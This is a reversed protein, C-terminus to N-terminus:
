KSAIANSVFTRFGAPVVKERKSLILFVKRFTRRRPVKKRISVEFSLNISSALDLSLISALVERDCELECKCSNPLIYALNSYREHPPSGRRIYMKSDQKHLVFLPGKRSIHVGAQVFADPQKSSLTPHQLQFRRGVSEDRLRISNPLELTRAQLSDKGSRAMGTSSRTAHEPSRDRARTRSNTARIDVGGFGAVRKRHGVGLLSVVSGLRKPADCEIRLLIFYLFHM